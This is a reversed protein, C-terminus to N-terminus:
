SKKENEKRQKKRNEQDKEYEIHEPNKKRSRDDNPTPHQKSM